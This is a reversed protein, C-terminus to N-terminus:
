YMVKYKCYIYLPWGDGPAYRCFLTPLFFKQVKLVVAGYSSDEKADVTHTGTDGFFIIANFFGERCALSILVQIFMLILFLGHGGSSFTGM